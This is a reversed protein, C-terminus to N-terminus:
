LEIMEGNCSYEEFQVNEYYEMDFCKEVTDIVVNKFHLNRVPSAELATIHIGTKGGNSVNVNEVFINSFSPIYDGEPGEFVDYKMNFRFVSNKVQGVEVNRMYINEIVGGRRSNSKVRLAHNLNPSSMICDEIFVNRVGSSTESGIVVGGHGDYMKCGQVIINESPVSARRGDEDRGSKIAICDDGTDFLCDKILVNKCYEPECGDNNPGHSKITLGEITVNTCYIPHIIWFPSRHITLGEIAVNECDFFQIFHPRLASKEGFVRENVPVNNRMMDLLLITGLSDREYRRGPQWTDKDRRKWEWWNDYSAQGDIAGEGTLGINEQKYAYILPSYNYLEVGAWSTHVVPLYDAADTSFKLIAGKELHLNVNSKLHVPGTYYTGEPVIVVGGGSSHCDEIADAIAMGSNFFATDAIAGYHLINFSADRFEPRVIEALIEDKFKWNDVSPKSCFILPLFLFYLIFFKGSFFKM